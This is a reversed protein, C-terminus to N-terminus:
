HHGGGHHGGGGRHGGGDHHGGGGGGGRPDAAGGDGAPGPGPGPGPNGGGQDGRADHGRPDGHRGDRSPDGPWPHTPHGAKKGPDIAVPPAPAVPAAGGAAPSGADTSTDAGATDDSAAEDTAADGAGMSTSLESRGPEVTAVAGLDLPAGNREAVEQALTYGVGGVLASAGIAGAVTAAFIGTRKM